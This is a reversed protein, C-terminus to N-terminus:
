RVTVTVANSPVGDRWLVVTHAGARVDAPLVFNIQNLGAYGPARGAYQVAVPRDDLTVQVSDKVNGSTDTADAGLGTGFLAVINPEGGARTANFPAPTFTIADLAAAAGTGGQNLTFLSPAAAATQAAGVTVTGDASTATISVPGAATGPPIQYNIQTPSVYFLPALREQGTGDKVRVTTGALTTPLPLSAAAETATALGTGFASVIAQRAVHSVKYNAASATVVLRTGSQSVASVKGNAGYTIEYSGSPLTLSRIRSQADRQLPIDYATLRAQTDVQYGRSFNTGRSYVDLFFLFQEVPQHRGMQQLRKRGVEFTLDTNAVYMNSISAFFEQPARVFFGDEIISRLYNMRDNGADQILATQRARLAANSGITLGEVVHNAEHITVLAFGDCDHPTVEAPFGNGGNGGVHVAFVNVATRADIHLRTAGVNGYADNVSINGPLVLGAPVADYLNQIFTTEAPHFFHNDHLLLSHSRWLHLRPGSLKLTAAIDDKIQPTLSLTDRLNIHVQMRVANAFPQAVPDIYHAASLWQPHQAILQKTWAYLADKDTLTSGRAGLNWAFSLWMNLEDKDAPAAALFQGLDAPHNQFAASIRGKALELLGYQLKYHTFDDFWAFTPYWLYGWLAMNSKRNSFYGEFFGRWHRETYIPKAIISNATNVSPQDWGQHLREMAATMADRDSAGLQFQAQASGAPILLALALYLYAAVISNKMKGFRRQASTLILLAFRACVKRQVRAGEDQSSDRREFIL